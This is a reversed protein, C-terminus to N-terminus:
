CWQQSTYDAVAPSRHRQTHRCASLLMDHTNTQKIDHHPQLLQAVNQLVRWVRQETNKKRKEKRKETKTGTLCSFASEACILRGESEDQRVPVVQLKLGGELGVLRYSRVRCQSELKWRVSREEKNMSENQQRVARRFLCELCWQSQPSLFEWPSSRWEPYTGASCPFVDLILQNLLMQHTQKITLHALFRCSYKARRRLAEMFPAPVSSSVSMRMMTPRESALRYCEASHSSTRM